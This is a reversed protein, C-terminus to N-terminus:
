KPLHLRFTVPAYADTRAQYSSVLILTDPNQGAFISNSALKGLQTYGGEEKAVRLYAPYTEMDEQTNTVLFCLKDAMWCAGILPQDDSLVTEQNTLVNLVVLERGCGTQCPRLIAMKQGDQSISLITGDGYANREKTVPDFEYIMDDDGNLYLKGMSLFISGLFGEREELAVLREEDEENLYPDFVLLQMKEDGTMCFLRGDTNWVFDATYEGLGEGALYTLVDKKMDYLYLLRFGDVLEIFAVMSGDPSFAAKGISGLELDALLRPTGEEPYLYLQEYKQTGSGSLSEVLIQRAMLATKGDVSWQLFRADAAWLTPDIKEKGTELRGLADLNHRSLLTQYVPVEGRILYFTQAIRDDGFEKLAQEVQACKQDAEEMTEFPESLLLTHVGDACLVPHFSLEEWNPHKKLAPDDDQLAIYVAEQGTGDQPRVRILLENDQTTAGFCQAGLFQLYLQLSEEEKDFIYGLCPSLPTFSAAFGAQLAPLTLRLRAPDDLMTLLFSPVLAPQGAQDTFALTFLLEEGERRLSLKSLTVAGSRKDGGVFEQGKDYYGPISSGPRANQKGTCSVCVVLCLLAALLRLAKCSIFNFHTKM